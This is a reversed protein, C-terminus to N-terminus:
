VKFKYIDSVNVDAPFLWTPQWRGRNGMEMAARMESTLPEMTKDKVNYVICDLTDDEPNLMWKSVFYICDERAGSQAPLSRSCDQSVFLTYGM